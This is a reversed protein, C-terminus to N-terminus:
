LYGVARSITYFLADKVHGKAIEIPNIVLNVTRFVMNTWFVNNIKSRLEAIEKRLEMIQASEYLILHKADNPPLDTSPKPSTEDIVEFGEDM